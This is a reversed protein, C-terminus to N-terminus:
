AAEETEKLANCVQTVLTEVLHSDDGEAMVRIVAETGSPRVILRGDRGLKERADEIVTIVSAKELAQKQARVNKLIQPLPEFCHCVESVARGQRKVESLVQM